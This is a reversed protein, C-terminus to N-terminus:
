PIKLLKLPHGLAWPGRVQDAMALFSGLIQLITNFMFNYHWIRFQVHLVMTMTRWIVLLNRATNSWYLGLSLCGTFQFFFMSPSDCRRIRCLVIRSSFSLMRTKHQILGVRSDSFSMRMELMSISLSLVITMDSWFPFSTRTSDYTM